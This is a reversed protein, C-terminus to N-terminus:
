SAIEEAALGAAVKELGAVRSGKILVADGPRLQNALLTAAAAADPVQRVEIRDDSTASAGQAIGAADDGVVTLHDIGLEVCRQGIREHEAHATAGIEAMVGLVAFRRGDSALAVLTQLAAEVSTPNANYADNLITVQDVVTVEGRWSSVRAGEIGRAAAALDVGLQGAVALALLANTMQHRGSVPVTVEVEGWPTSVTATPRALHDLRIDRASLDASPDDVSVTLVAPAVSGMAAVRPDATNLVALGSPSLSEVLERKGAAVDDITGFIELHVGAVSTVVAIDPALLPALKAIDGVHRAGVEAVLVETDNTLGLMTLPVGLENNFSGVSAHTRRGQSVAASTLDKVTTKGVSGTIAVSWPDVEARVAAALDQLAQWTDAVEIVPVAVDVDRSAVVAVAGAEVAAEAFDHGDAHEGALAVFLVRGEPLDRSDTAVRDVQTSSAQSVTGQVAHAVEHLTLEIM